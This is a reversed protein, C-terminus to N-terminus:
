RPGSGAAAPQRPQASPNQAVWWSSRYVTATPQGKATFRGAIYLDAPHAKVAQDIADGDFALIIAAHTAPASLAARFIGLDSENITQRLPIGTLSVLEPYASTNMLVPDRPSVSLQKQLLAPIANDYPLRAQINRAGETYVQPVKRLLLVTNLGALAFFVAFAVSALGQAPRSFNLRRLLHIASQAAFGLGLALAPLLEIGYRTNYWTYPWWAPFFIPVSGYAVSWTYFPVPLWLLM